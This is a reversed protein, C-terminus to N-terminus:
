YLMKKIIRKWKNEFLIDDILFCRRHTNDNIEGFNNPIKDINHTKIENLFDDAIKEFYNKHDIHLNECSKCIKYIHINNNKYHLIQSEISTRLASYLEFKTSKHKGSITTKLSIDIESNDNNIIIIKLAKKNLTDQIIKLDKM